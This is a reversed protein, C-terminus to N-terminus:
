NKNHRERRDALQGVINSREQDTYKLWKVIEERTRYCGVCIARDESLLCLGVCPSETESM